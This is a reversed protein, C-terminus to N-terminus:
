ADAAVRAWGRAYLEARVDLYGPYSQRASEVVSRELTLYTLGDTSEAIVDGDPGVAISPGGISSDGESAPRNVSIVYAASTIADARIVTRWRELSEPPTARPGLIVEAGLAALLNCGQPRQLDSCIQMGVVLGLGDVPRPPETGPAYHDSEWFGEESPVHSKDYAGILAGRANFLLARNHRRGTTPDRVIAGGHLAIGIERATDALLQHRAGRPPEADDDHTVRQAPIWPDLPLEPLLALQAGHRLAEALRETLRETRDAGYFVDHVLAVTLTGDSM